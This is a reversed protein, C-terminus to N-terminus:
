LRSNPHRIAIKERVPEVWQLSHSSLTHIMEELEYHKLMEGEQIWLVPILDLLPVLVFLREKWRPHPIELEDDLHTHMGYFLIDIDIVRPAWKPKPIKGLNNEIRQTKELLAKPALTTQFRCAVNIFANQNEDGVPSTHYFSSVEFFGESLLTLADLAKEIAEWSSEQNGGLSLYVTTLRHIGDSEKENM